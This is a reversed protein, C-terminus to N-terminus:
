EQDGDIQAIKVDLLASPLWRQGPAPVASESRGSSLEITLLSPNVGEIVWELLECRRVRRRSRIPDQKLFSMPEERSVANYVLLGGIDEAFPAALDVGDNAGNLPQAKGPQQM